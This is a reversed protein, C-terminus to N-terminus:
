HVKEAEKSKIYHRVIFSIKEDDLREREQETLLEEPFHQVPFRFSIMEIDEFSIKGKGKLSVEATEKKTDWLSSDKETPQLSTLHDRKFVIVVKVIAGVEKGSFGESMAVRFGKGSAMMCMNARDSHNEIDIDQGMVVSDIVKQFSESRCLFSQEQFINSVASAEALGLGANRLDSEIDEFVAGIESKNLSINRLMESLRASESEKYPSFSNSEFANMTM